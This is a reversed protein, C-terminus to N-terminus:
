QYIKKKLQEIQESFTLSPHITYLKIEQHLRVDWILVSDNYGIRGDILFPSGIPIKFIKSPCKTVQNQCLIESSPCYCYFFDSIQEFLLM